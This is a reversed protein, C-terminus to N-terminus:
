EESKKNSYSILMDGPQFDLQPSLILGCENGAAVEDVPQKGRRLSSIRAEGLDKNGRALHVHWRKNLKGELVRCGAVKKGDFPFVKLIEARGAAAAESAPQTLRLIEEGMTEFLEYILTFTRWFVRHQRAEKQAALNAGVRFGYIQAGSTQALFVDAESIEGVGLSIIQAEPPLNREVAELSGQSDARIIIKLKKEEEEAAKGELLALLDVKAEESEKRAAATLDDDRNVAHATLPSGPPPPESFGLVEVPQGPGAWKINQGSPSLIARVKIAEESLYITQRPELHGNMVIVTAAAGRRADKKAELVVGRFEGDPNANLELIKGMLVILELLDDIGAGTKASIAVTPIKGGYEEPPYGLEVLESKVKDANATELDIKNIAVIFPIKAEKIHELCEKTQAKVGEDAAVVLVALDTLQAGRARMQAFAAHGPTDIFTIKESQKDVDIEIQYAGITQTIGGAERATLNSQRIKDLLTTKGHDVHGMITVIPPRLLLKKKKKM